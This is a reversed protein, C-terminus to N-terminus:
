GVNPLILDCSRPTRLALAGSPCLEAARRAVLQLGESLPKGFPVAVTVEFGRGTTTLGIPEGAQAALRVCAECMICKGPEYVIDPPSLDQSFERRAGAFRYVDAGYETALARIGCSLCRHAEREAAAGPLGLEVEDFGALRQTRDIEPM